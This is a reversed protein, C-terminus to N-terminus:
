LVKLLTSNYTQFILSGKRASIWHATDGGDALGKLNDIASCTFGEQSLAVTDLPLCCIASVVIRKLFTM